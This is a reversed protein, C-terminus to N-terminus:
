SSALRIQSELEEIRDRAESVACALSYILGDGTCDRWLEGHRLCEVGGKSKLIVTYKGDGVSIHEDEQNM